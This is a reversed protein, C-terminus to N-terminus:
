AKIRSALRKNLEDDSLSELERLKQAKNRKDEVTHKIETKDTWAEPKRNKLWFIAATTDPPYYKVTKVKTIDGKECFIKDEEHSYGLARHYLSNAVRSDSAAKGKKLANSFKKDHLYQYITSEAINMIEAMEKHTHGTEALRCLVDMDLSDKKSPRGTKKSYNYKKPM